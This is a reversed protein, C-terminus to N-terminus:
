AEALWKEHSAYRRLIQLNQTEVDQLILEKSPYSDNWQYPNGNSAMFKRSLIVCKMAEDADAATALRVSYNHM